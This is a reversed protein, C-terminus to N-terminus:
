AEEVRSRGFLSSIGEFLAGILIILIVAALAFQNSLWYAGRESDPINSKEGFTLGGAMGSLLGQVQGSQVYPQLLPASQASSVVLFPVGNLSPQVQEIWARSNEITDSFLIVADFDSLQHVNFLVASDWVPRNELGSSLGYQVAQQPSRVLEQLSVTEGALYGLNIFRDRETYGARLEPSEAIAATILGEALVMGAPSTSIAALRLNQMMLRQIVGGAAFRMEGSYGPTFEVALLVSADPPLAEVQELFPQISAAPALLAGAQPIGLLPLLVVVILIVGILGRVLWQPKVLHSRKAASIRKEEELMNELLASHARQKDNVQLKVSYIPPKGYHAALPTAPLVASIGALPGSVEVSTEDLAEIKEPLVSEIPRMAELWEPLVGKTLAENGESQGDTQILPATAAEELLPELDEPLAEESLQADTSLNRSEEQIWASLDEGIFPPTGASQEGEEPLSSEKLDFIASTAEPELDGLWESLDAGSQDSEEPAAEEEDQDFTQWDESVEELPVGTLNQEEVLWDPLGNQNQAEFASQSAPHVDVAEEDAPEEANATMWEPLPEGGGDAPEPLPEEGGQALEGLDEDRLRSWAPAEDAESAAIDDVPLIGPMMFAEDASQLAEEQEESPLEEEPEVPVAGTLEDTIDAFAPVEEDVPTTEERPTEFQAQLDMLWASLEDDPAELEPEPLEAQLPAEEGGAEPPPIEEEPHIIADPELAPSPEAERDFDKSQLYALLDDEEDTQGHPEAPASTEGALTAAYLSEATQDSIQEDLKSLWDALEADPEEELWPQELPLEPKLTEDPQEGTAHFIDEADPQVAHKDTEQPQGADAESSALTKSWDPLEEEPQYFNGSQQVEEERQSIQRIRQLWDPLEEAPAEEEGSESEDGPLGSEQSVLGAQRLADLADEQPEPSQAKLFDKLSPAVLRAGCYLCADADEPNMKECM